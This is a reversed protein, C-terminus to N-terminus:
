SLTATLPTTSWGLWILLSLMSKSLRANEMWGARFTLVQRVMAAGKQASDELINLLRLESPTRTRQRLVGLSMVIPALMNNLDHAIGSALTGISELRQARLIQAELNRQETLDILSGVMRTPKGDASRILFCRDLVYATSGDKRLFVINGSGAM